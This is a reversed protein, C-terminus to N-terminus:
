AAAAAEASVEWRELDLHDCREERGSGSGRGADATEATRRRRRRRGWTARLKWLKARRRRRGAREGGGSM